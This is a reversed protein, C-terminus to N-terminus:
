NSLMLENEVVKQLVNNVILSVKQFGELLLEHFINVDGKLFKPLNMNYLAEVLILEECSDRDGRKITGAINLM